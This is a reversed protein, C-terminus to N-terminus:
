AQAARELKEFFREIAPWQTKVDEYGVDVLRSTHAPHFLLFSLFEAAADRHGGVARIVRRVGPPLLQGQGAALYGLDRTPHLLLLEVPRLGDPPPTDLPLAALLRNVRELREADAALADLFIADFLLGMAEAASPYDAARASSAATRPTALGIAVVARAGLHLAPALPAMQRVSGDGYFEDGIRVAPFVLPLAASAMVHDLMLQTRVAIRQVREWVPTDATGQVFTVSRGTTYSTASLAAARLRRNAINAGIGRVDVCRTLFERLPQTDTLGRVAVPDRRRGIAGQWAWRLASRVLRISRVRYVADSTLRGWESRLGAVAAPLPGTHAALYITNIAGVSMGTLIPFELGPLREALGALVGVQYAGRAGGGSLVLALHSSYRWTGPPREGPSTM